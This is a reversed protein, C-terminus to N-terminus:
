AIVKAQREAQWRQWEAMAHGASAVIRSMLAHKPVLRLAQLFGSTAALKQLLQFPADAAIALDLADAIQQHLRVIGEVTYDSEHDSM